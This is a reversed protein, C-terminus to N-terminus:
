RHANVYARTLPGFFGSAPSIGVSAQFKALAARTRGGFVTTENGVSGAGNLAVFFGHSNLYQQLARVDEGKSGMTLNRAFSTFTAGGNLQAQLANVQALLAAIQAQLADPTGPAPTTTGTSTTTSTSGGSSGSGGGGGGGSSSGGGGGGGGGANCGADLTAISLTQTSATSAPITLTSGGSDCAYTYANGVTAGTIMLGGTSTLTFSSGPANTVVVNDPNVTFSAAASGSQIVLTKGPGSLVVNTNVNWTLNAAFATGVGIALMAGVVPLVLLRSLSHKNM